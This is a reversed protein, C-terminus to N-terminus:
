SKFIKLLIKLLKKKLASIVVLPKIVQLVQGREFYKPSEGRYIKIFQKGAEKLVPM